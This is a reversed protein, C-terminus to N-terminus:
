AAKRRRLGALGLLGLGALAMSGPEPITMSTDGTGSARVTWTATPCPTAASCNEITLRADYTYVQDTTQNYVSITDKQFLSAASGGTIDMYTTAALANGTLDSTFDSVFSATPDVSNFGPMMTMELWLSGTSLLVDPQPNDNLYYDTLGNRNGPGDAPFGDVPTIPNSAFEYIRIKGGVGFATFGATSGNQSTYLVKQDTNGYFIGLLQQGTAASTYLDDSFPVGISKIRFVGWSDESGIGGPASLAANSDCTGVTSCVYDGVAVGTPDYGVTGAEYGYTLDFTVPGSYPGYAFTLAHASTAMAGCAIGVAACLTKIKSLKM